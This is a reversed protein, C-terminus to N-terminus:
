TSAVVPLQEEVLVATTAVTLVVGIMVDVVGALRQSLPVTVSVATAFEPVTFQYAFADPPVLKAVPPLKMVGLKVAVM